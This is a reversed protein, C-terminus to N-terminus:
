FLIQTESKRVRILKKYTKMATFIIIHLYVVSEIANIRLGPDKDTSIIEISISFNNEIEKIIYSWSLVNMAM